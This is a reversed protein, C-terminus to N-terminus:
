KFSFKSEWNDGLIIEIDIDSDTTAQNLIKTEPINMMLSLFKITHEKGTHNILYIGSYGSDINGTGQVQINSAELYEKFRNALGETSTGNLIVIRANDSALETGFDEVLTPQTASIAPDSSQESIQTVNGQPNTVPTKV